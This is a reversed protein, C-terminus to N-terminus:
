EKTMIINVMYVTDPSSHQRRPEHNIPYSQLLHYPIMFELITNHNYNHFICVDQKIIAIQRIEYGIIKSWTPIIM